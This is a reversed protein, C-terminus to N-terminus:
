SSLRRNCLQGASISSFAEFRSRSPSRGTLFLVANRLRSSNRLAPPPEARSWQISGALRGAVLRKSEAASEKKGRQPEEGAAARNAPAARSGSWGAGRWGGASGLASAAPRCRSRGRGRRPPAAGPGRVALPQALGKPWRRHRSSRAPLSLTPGAAQCWALREPSIRGRSYM